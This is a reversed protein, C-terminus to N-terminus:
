KRKGAEMDDSPPLRDDGTDLIDYSKGTINQYYNNLGLFYDNKLGFLDYLNGGLSFARSGLGKITLSVPSEGGDYHDPMPANKTVEEVAGPTTIVNTTPSVVPDTPQAKNTGLVGFVVAAGVLAIVAAAIGSVMAIPIKRAKKPKLPSVTAQKKAEEERVRALTKMILDDSASVNSMNKKMVAALKIDFEDRHKKM